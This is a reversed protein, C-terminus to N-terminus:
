HLSRPSLRQSKRWGNSESSDTSTIHVRRDLMLWISDYINFRVETARDKAHHAWCGQPTSDHLWRHSERVQVVVHQPQWFQTNISMRHVLLPIWANCGLWAFCHTDFLTPTCALTFMFSRILTFFELEYVDSHAMFLLNQITSDNLKAIVTKVSDLM